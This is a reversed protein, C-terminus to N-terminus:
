LTGCRYSGLTLRSELRLVEYEWKEDVELKSRSVKYRSLSM